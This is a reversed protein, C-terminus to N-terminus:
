FLKNFWIKSNSSILCFCCCLQELAISIKKIIGLALIILGAEM